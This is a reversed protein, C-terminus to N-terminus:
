VEGTIVIRRTNDSAYGYKQITIKGSAFLRKIAADILPRKGRFKCDPDNAFVTAINNNARPQASLRQDMHLATRLMRLCEEEVELEFEEQTLEKNNGTVNIDEDDAVYLSHAKSWQMEIRIGTPADNSKLVTLARSFSTDDGFETDPQPKTLLLRHRLGNSWQVSGSSGSASTGSEDKQSRVSVHGPMIITTKYDVVIGNLLEICQRAQVDSVQDVGFVNVRNGIIVLAPQYSEILQRIATLLPTPQVLGTRPNYAAMITSRGMMPLVRLRDPHQKLSADIQYKSELYQCIYHQRWRIRSLHDEVNIYLVKGPAVERGLWRTECAMALALQLLLYDKGTGGDGYVGNLVDKMIFGPVIWDVDVLPEDELAEGTIYDLKPPEKKDKNRLEPRLQIVNSGDHGNSKLTLLPKIRRNNTVWDPLDKQDEIVTPDRAMFGICLERLKREEAKWNWKRSEPVRAKLEEIINSVVDNVQHGHAILSASIDRETSHVNGPYQLNDWMADIDIPEVIIQDTGVREFPDRPNSALSRGAPTPQVTVLDILWQPAAAIPAENLWQYTGDTRVSPPAVFMGGDGKVDLGPGLVSASSWVKVGPHKFLRHISDSPSKFMSTIPLKGHTQELAAVALEGDAGHGGKITDSELDFVGNEAGTPVGIGCVDRWKGHSFNRQLRASDRSAGWAAGDPAHKASLYSKKNSVDAPFIKWGLKDAYHLAAKLCESTPRKAKAVSPRGSAAVSSSPQL